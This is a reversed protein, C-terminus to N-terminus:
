VNVRMQGRSNCKDLGLVRYVRGSIATARVEDGDIEVKLETPVSLPMPRAAPEELPVANVALSFAREPAPGPEPKPMPEEISKEKAAAKVAAPQPEIIPAPMPEEIKKGKATS